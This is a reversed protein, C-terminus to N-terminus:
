KCYWDPPEGWGRAGPRSGGRGMVLHPAKSDRGLIAVCRALWVDQPGVDSVGIGERWKKQYNPPLTLLPCARILGFCFLVFVFFSMSSISVAGCVAANSVMSSM